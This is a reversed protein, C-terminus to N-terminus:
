AESRGFRRHRSGYYTLAQDLEKPGFDPWLVDTFYFESYASQYLLFNSLRMEGSTRIVLDPDPVDATDLHKQFNEPTFAEGSKALAQAARLIEDRGGYNLAILLTHSRCGATERSMTECARRLEPSLKSADGLFRVRVDKKRYEPFKTEFYRLFLDFLGQVEQDPRTWNETSFAYVTVYEVGRSFAADLVTELAKVGARHGMNRPLLRKKAWRGNGDMIFAIHRPLNTKEM